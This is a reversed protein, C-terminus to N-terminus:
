EEHWARQSKQATAKGWAEDQEDSDAQYYARVADDLKQQVLPDSGDVLVLAESQAPLSVPQQPVFAKGDFIVRIATMSM